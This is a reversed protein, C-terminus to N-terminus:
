VISCTIITELPFVRKSCVDFKLSYMQSQLHCVVSRSVHAPNLVKKQWSWQSCLIATVVAPFPSVCHHYLMDIVYRIGWWFLVVLSNISKVTDDLYHLCLTVLQFYQCMGNCERDTGFWFCHCLQWMNSNCHISHLCMQLHQQQCCSVWFTGLYLVVTPAAPEINSRYKFVERGLFCAM